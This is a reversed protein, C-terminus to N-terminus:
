RAPFANNVLHSGDSDTDGYRLGSSHIRESISTLEVIEANAAESYRAASAQAATGTQGQLTPVLSDAEAEIARLRGQLEGSIRDYDSAAAAMGEEDTHMPQSM